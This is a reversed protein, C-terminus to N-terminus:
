SGCFKSKALICVLISIHSITINFIYINLYFKSFELNMRICYTMLLILKNSWKRESTVLQYRTRKNSIFLIAFIPLIILFILHTKSQEIHYNKLHTKSQEIHSKKFHPKSQELHDQLPGDQVIMWNVVSLCARIQQEKNYFFTSKWMQIYKTATRRRRGAGHIAVRCSFWVFKCSVYPRM